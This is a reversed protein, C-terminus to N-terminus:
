GDYKVEFQGFPIVLAGKLSEAMAAAGAKNWSHIVVNKGLFGTSALHKAIQKGDGNASVGAWDLIGLDHDLFVVDFPENTVLVGIADNVNTCVVINPVREKFWAIRYDSDELLFVRGNINITTKM